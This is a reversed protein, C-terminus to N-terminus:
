PWVHHTVMGPEDDPPAFPVTPSPAPPGEPTPPTDPPPTAAGQLSRVVWRNYGRLKGTLDLCHGGVNRGRVARLKAGLGSASPLKGPPCRLLEVLAARFTEYSSPSAELKGLVEGATLGKGGPDLEAWGAVLDRLVNAEHDAVQELEDRAEGPDPQGAWVLAGRVLASWAEFSGWPGIAVAPQGAACYARLVTVAYSALRAREDRVWALLPRHRFDIRREPREEPSNLRVHVARRGMDGRLQVNNGTAYWTALNPLRVTDNGGLARDSWEERTLVMVLADSGLPRTLNDLLLLPNGDLLLATIRKREESDDTAQTMGGMPRGGFIEAICDTLLSKGAGRVNADVLFLPTCGRFAHRAFPTLLAALWAARHCPKDFPFDEVIEALAACASAADEQTPKAPVPPYAGNPLYLLGTADDYGPAELVTGDPRLVPCEVVGELPRVGPWQGRAALDGVAWDPVHAPLLEGQRNRRVWAASASLLARLRASALAQIRPAGPARAVASRTEDDKVVVVLKVGRAYVDHGAAVFAALAEDAVDHEDTTVLIQPRPRRPGMPSSPPSAPPTPPAFQGGAPTALPASPPAPAGEDGTTRKEGQAARRPARKEHPAPSLGEFRFAEALLNVAERPSVGRAGAVLDVTTYVRPGEPTACGAYCTAVNGRDGGVHMSTPNTGGHCPCACRDRAVTVGLWHLVEAVPVDKAREFPRPPGSTSGGGAHRGGSPRAQTRPPAPPLALFPALSCTGPRTALLRVARPTGTKWNRSGAVRLVQHAACSAPDAGLQAALRTQAERWAAESADADLAWWAQLGGGTHTLLAPAVPARELATQAENETAHTPPTGHGAAGFDIDAFLWRRPGVDRATGSPRLRPLAGLFVDWGEVDAARAHAVAEVLTTAWRVPGPTGRREGPRKRVAKVEAWGGPPLHEFWRALFRALEDDRDSTPPM